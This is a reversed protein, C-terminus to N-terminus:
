GEGRFLHSITTSATKSLRATLRCIKVCSSAMQGADVSSQELVDARSMSSIAAAAEVLGCMTMPMCKKEGALTVHWEV